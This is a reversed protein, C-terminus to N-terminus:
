RSRVPNSKSQLYSPLTSLSHSMFLAVLRLDVKWKRHDCGNNPIRLLHLALKQKAQYRYSRMLRFFEPKEKQPAQHYWQEAYTLVEGVRTGM